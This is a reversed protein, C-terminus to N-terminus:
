PCYLCSCTGLVERGQGSDRAGQDQLAEAESELYAPGGVVVERDGQEALGGQGEEQGPDEGAEQQVGEHLYAAEEQAIGQDTQDAEEQVVAEQGGEELNHDEVQVEEGEALGEVVLVMEEVDEQDGLGEETLAEEESAPVEELHVEEQGVHLGLRKGEVPCCGAGWRCLGEQVWHGTHVGGETHARSQGRHAPCPSM